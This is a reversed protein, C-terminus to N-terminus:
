QNRLNGAILLKSSVRHERLVIVDTDTSPTTVSDEMNAHYRPVSMWNLTVTVVQIALVVSVATLGSSIWVSAMTVTSLCATM